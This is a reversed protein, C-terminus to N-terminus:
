GTLPRPARYIVSYQSLSEHTASGAQLSASSATQSAGDRDSSAEAGSGAVLGVLLSVGLTLFANRVKHSKERWLVEAVSDREISVSEGEVTFTLAEPTVGVFRGELVRNRTTAVTIRDGDRLRRLNNWDHIGEPLAPAEQITPATARPLPVAGGLAPVAPGVLLAALLCASSPRRM